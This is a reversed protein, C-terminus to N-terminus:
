MCSGELARLVVKNVFNAEAGKDLLVACVATHGKRAASILATDGYQPLTHHPDSPPAPTLMVVTRCLTVSKVGVGVYM